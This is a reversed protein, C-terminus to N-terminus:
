QTQIIQPSSVYKHSRGNSMREDKTLAKEQAYHVLPKNWSGWYLPLICVPQSALVDCPM